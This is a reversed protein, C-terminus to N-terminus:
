TTVAFHMHILFSSAGKKTCWKSTFLRAFAGGIANTHRGPQSSTVALVDSILIAFCAKSICEYYVSIGFFATFNSRQLIVVLFAGSHSQKLTKVNFSAM